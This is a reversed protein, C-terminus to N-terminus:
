PRSVRDHMRVTKTTSMILAYSVQDFTRFIMMEGVREDPLTVEENAGSAYPDSVTEGAQEIGLVTGVEMGDQAGRNIVVVQNSAVQSLADFLGIIRGDVEGDPVQPIYRTPPVVGDVALLRDGRRIERENSTLILRAPDGHELVRAQGTEIAEWGLTENTDPDVLPDGLRYVMYQGFDQPDVGRAFVEDGAAMLVREERSALIYPSNEMQEPTVVRPRNLFGRIAEAPITPIAEELPLRRVEPELKRVGPEGDTYEGDPREVHLRPEGDVWILRIVDGPYILHPNTIQPNVSWIEPWVWPDRLFRAAIDWLTDGRRVTYRSPRQPRLQEPTVATTPEAEPAPATTPEPEPEPADATRPEDTSACGAVLLTLALLWFVPSGLGAANRPTM